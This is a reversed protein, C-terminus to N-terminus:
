NVDDMDHFISVFLVDSVYQHERRFDFTTSMIMPESDVLTVLLLFPILDILDPFRVSIM